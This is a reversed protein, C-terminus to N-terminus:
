QTKNLNRETEKDQIEFKKSIEDILINTCQGLIKEITIKLNPTDKIKTERYLWKMNETDTIFDNWAIEKYPAISNMILFNTRSLFILLTFKYSKLSPYKAKIEVSIYDFPIEGALVKLDIPKKPEETGLTSYLTPVNFIGTSKRENGYIVNVFYENQKEELLHLVSKYEVINKLPIGRNICGKNVSLEYLEAIHSPLTFESFSENIIDIADVIESFDTCYDEADKKVMDILSFEKKIEETTESAVAGIDALKKEVQEKLETTVTCFEETLNAQNVFKPTQEDKYISSFTDSIRDTINKFRITSETDQDLVAQVFSETFYSLRQAHSPEDNQSSFMFYCDKLERKRASERLTKEVLQEDDKIYTAGSYCADIVKVALKPSLLRLYSDVESNQLSTDNLKASEYDSLLFYVDSSNTKGHGTFYFFVQDIEEESNRHKKVFNVVQDKVQNSNLNENIFLIENYEKTQKLLEHMVQIDCLCADLNNINKYKSVGILIAIKVGM